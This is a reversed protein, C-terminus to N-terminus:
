YGAAVAWLIGGGCIVGIISDLLPPGYGAASLVLGILIGPLSIVDPIIQHDLDIFSVVILAGVLLAAVALAPTLAFREVLIVAFLGTLAAIAPYRMSIRGGCARCRGRLLLYSVLPINDWPRIHANCHPCHSPPYVVSEGAPLRAICVNLFSGIIAGFV